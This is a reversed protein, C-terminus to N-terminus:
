KFKRTRFVALMYVTIVVMAVCSGWFWATSRVPLDLFNMGWFGTFFTLPMFITAVITLRKMIDNLRNSVASLHVDLAGTLIDRYSDLMDSLRILHDYVNRLYFTTDERIHPYNRSTMENIAERLPGAKKRFGILQRKFRFIGEVASQGAAVDFVMDELDDLVDEIDDVVEIYRDVVADLIYYMLRDSGRNMIGTRKGADQWVRALEPSSDRHVSALYNAGVFLDIEHWKLTLIDDEKAASLSHMVLFFYDEYDEVKPRQGDEKSADELALEHFGFPPAALMERETDDLPGDIDIWVLAAPNDRILGLAEQADAQAPAADGLCTMAKM